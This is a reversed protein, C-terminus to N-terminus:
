KTLCEKCFRLGTNDFNKLEYTTNGYKSGGKSINQQTFDIRQTYYLKTENDQLYILGWLTRHTIIGFQNKQYAWNTDSEAVVKIVTAKNNFEKKAWDMAQPVLKIGLNFHKMESKIDPMTCLKKGISVKGAETVNLTFEGTALVDNFYASNVKVKHSGPSLLSANYFFDLLLKNYDKGDDSSIGWNRSLAATFTTPLDGDSDAKTKSYTKTGPMDVLPKDDIFVEFLTYSKELFARFYIDDELNFTNALDAESAGTKPIPKKSFVIQKLYKKHLESTIGEDQSQSSTNNGTANKIKNKLNSLQANASYNCISIALVTLAIKSLLQKYM